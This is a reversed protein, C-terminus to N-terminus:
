GGREGRVNAEWAVQHESGEQEVRIDEVGRRLAQAAATRWTWGGIRGHEKNHANMARAERRLVERDEEVVFLRAYPM